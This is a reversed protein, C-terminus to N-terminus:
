LFKLAIKTDTFKEAFIRPRRQLKKDEEYKEKEIIIQGNPNKDLNRVSRAAFYISTYSCAHWLSHWLGYNKDGYNGDLMFCVVGAIGLLISIVMFGNERRGSPTFLRYIIYAVFGVNVAGSTVLYVADVDYYVANSVSTVIIVPITWLPIEDFVVIVVILLLTLNAFSIDWPETRSIDWDFMFAMHSIVSCIIGILITIALWETKWLIYVVSIGFLHTLGILWDQLEQSTDYFALIIVLIAYAFVSIIKFIDLKNFNM